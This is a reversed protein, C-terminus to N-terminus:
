VTIYGKKTGYRILKNNVKTIFKVYQSQLDPSVPVSYLFGILDECYKRPVSMVSSLWGLLDESYALVDDFDQTDSKWFDMNKSLLDIYDQIYKQRKKYIFLWSNFLKEFRPLYRKYLSAILEDTLPPISNSSSFRVQANEIYRCAEWYKFREYDDIIPIDKRYTCDSRMYESYVAEVLDSRTVQRMDVTIAGLFISMLANPRVEISDDFELCVPSLVTSSNIISFACSEIVTCYKSLKIRPNRMGCDWSFEVMKDQFLKISVGNITALKAQWMKRYDDHQYVVTKLFEGSCQGMGFGLGLDNVITAGEVLFGQKVKQLLKQKPYCREQKRETDYVWVKNPIDIRSIFRM